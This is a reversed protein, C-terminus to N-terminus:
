HLSTKQAILNGLQCATRALNERTHRIAQDLPEPAHGIPFFADFHRQWVGPPALPVAGALAIVPLGAAHCRDAVGLPAKGSLTQTDLSGEGTIVLDAQRLAAAFATHELFYDIGNVLRAGLLGNLGAATGGAAGGFPMASVDRGSCSRIVRSYRKLAKELLVIDGSEAGKQPGFVKVCNGRGLLPTTVDCLVVLEVKELRRDLKELDIQALQLLGEPLQRIMKGARDRFKGGLARIIGAGGDITASGGVGILIRRAGRDLAAKILRGTGRTDSQLPRLRAAGLRSLGSAASLAVVATKEGPMWGFSATVPHGQANVSRVTQLEGGKHFLLAEMTGDGGDAVPFVTIKGTLRSQMLGKRIALAAEAASLSHKFANTAILIHM